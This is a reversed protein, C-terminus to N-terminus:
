VTFLFRKAKLWRVLFAFTYFIGYYFRALNNRNINSKSAKDHFVAISHGRIVNQEYTNLQSPLFDLLNDEHHEFENNIAGLGEASIGYFYPKYTNSGLSNFSILNGEIENLLASRVMKIGGGYNRVIRNNILKNWCGNDISVGALKMSSSGDDLIPYEHIFDAAIEERSLSRRAGNLVVNNDEFINHSSGWDFCIGEKNNRSINNALLVCNIAGELYIGQARNDCTDCNKVIIAFPRCTKQEINLPEHCKEPVETLAVSKSTACLHIGADFNFYGNSLNCVCDEILGFQSEGLVMIGSALNNQLRCRHIHFRKSNHVIIGYGEALEVQCDNILFDNSETVAIINRGGTTIINEIIFDDCGMVEILFKTFNSLKQKTGIFTIKFNRCNELKVAKQLLLFANDIILEFGTLDILPWSAKTAYFRENYHKSEPTITSKEIIEDKNLIKYGKVARVTLPMSETNGIKRLQEYSKDM